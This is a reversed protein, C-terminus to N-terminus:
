SMCSSKFKCEVILEMDRQQINKLTALEQAALCSYEGAHEPKVNELFIGDAVARYDVDPVSSFLINLFYDTISSKISVSSKIEM